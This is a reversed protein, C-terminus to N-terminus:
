KANGNSHIVEAAKPGLRMVLDLASLGPVFYEMEYKPPSFEHYIVSINEKLFMDESLYDKGSPGALYNTANNYKCLALLLESASLTSKFNSSFSIPTSIDLLDRFLYILRVNLECLTTPSEKVIEEIMPYIDNFYPLRKYGTKIIELYKDQWLRSYDIRIESISNKWRGDSLECPITIYIVRGDRDIIKNRNHFYGKRFQVSDLVVYHDALMMKHFFGTWPMHEPQHVTVIKEM